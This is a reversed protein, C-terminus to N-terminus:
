AARRRTVPKRKAATARKKPSAKSKVKKRKTVPKKRASPRKKASKRKATVKKKTPKKKAKSSSSAKARVSTRKKASKKKTTTTKKKTTTKKAPAMDIGIDFTLNSVMDIQKLTKQLVKKLERLTGLGVDMFALALDEIKRIAPRQNPSYLDGVLVATRVAVNAKRETAKSLKSQM